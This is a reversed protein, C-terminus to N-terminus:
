FNVPKYKQDREIEWKDEREVDRKRKKKRKKRLWENEYGVSHAPNKM